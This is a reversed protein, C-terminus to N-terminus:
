GDELAKCIGGQLLMAALLTFAMRRKGALFFQFSDNYIVIKGAPLEGVDIDVVTDRHVIAEHVSESLGERTRYLAEGDQDLVVYDLETRNKHKEMEPWDDQVSHVIENVQVADQATNIDEFLFFLLATIEALFVVILSCIFVRKRM